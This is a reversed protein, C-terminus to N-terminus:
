PWFHARVGRMRLDRFFKLAGYRDLKLGMYWEPMTTNWGCQMMIECRFHLEFFFEDVYEAFDSNGNLLDLAIPIEIEPTDIDLKFSVFDDHTVGLDKLFSQISGATEALPPIPSNFFHYLPKWRPPVHDWFSVPEQLSVEWGYISDFDIGKQSCLDIDLDICVFQCFLSRSVHVDYRPIGVLLGFYRRTM